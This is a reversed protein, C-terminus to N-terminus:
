ELVAELHYCMGDGDAKVQLGRAGFLTTCAQTKRNITVVVPIEKPPTWDFIVNRTTDCAQSLHELLAKDLYAVTSAGTKFLETWRAGAIMRANDAFVSENDPIVPTDAVAAWHLLLTQVDGKSIGLSDLALKTQDSNFLPFGDGTPRVHKILFDIRIGM